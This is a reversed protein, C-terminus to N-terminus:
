RRSRGGPSCGAPASSAAYCAASRRRREPGDRAPDCDFGILGLEKRELVRLRRRRQRSGDGPVRGLRLAADIREDGTEDRALPEEPDDDALFLPEHEYSKGRRPKNEIKVGGAADVQQM